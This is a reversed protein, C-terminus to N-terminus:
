PDHNVDDGILIVQDGTREIIRKIANVKFNIKTEGGTVGKFIVSDYRINNSFLTARVRKGIIPPSATVVHLRETYNRAESLFEPIGIFVKETFIGNYTARGASGANTIKITDDLDSVITIESFASLSYVLSLAFILHKM